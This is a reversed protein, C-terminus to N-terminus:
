ADKAAAYNRRQVMGLACEEKSLMIQADQVAAYNRRQEMGLACEEMLLLILAGMRQAYSTRRMAELVKKVLWSKM